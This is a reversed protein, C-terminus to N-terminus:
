FTIGFADVVHAMLTGFATTDNGSHNLAVIRRDGSGDDLVWVSGSDGKNSIQDDPESGALETFEVTRRDPDDFRTQRDTPCSALPTDDQDCRIWAGSFRSIKAITTGTRAGSKFVRVLDTNGTNQVELLLDEIEMETM